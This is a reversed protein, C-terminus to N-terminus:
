FGLFIKSFRFFGLFRFSIKLNKGARLLVLGFHQQPTM